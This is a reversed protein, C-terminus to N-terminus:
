DGDEFYVMRRQPTIHGKTDTAILLAREHRACSRSRRSSPQRRPKGLPSRVSSPRGITLEEIIGVAVDGVTAVNYPAFDGHCVIGCPERPELMWTQAKRDAELFGHSASHFKRLLKGASRLMHKSGVIQDSLHECVRGEVYSM